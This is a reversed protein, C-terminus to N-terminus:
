KLTDRGFRGGIDSFHHIIGHRDDLTMGRVLCKKILVFLDRIPSQFVERVCPVPTQQDVSLVSSRAGFESIERREKSAHRHGVRRDRAQRRNM